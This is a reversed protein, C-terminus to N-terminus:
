QGGGEQRLWEPAESNYETLLVEVQEDFNNLRQICTRLLQVGEQFAALSKELPLDGRELSDVVADLRALAQEFNLESTKSKKDAM